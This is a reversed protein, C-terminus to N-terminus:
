RNRGDAAPRLLDALEARQADTHAPPEPLQREVFAVMTAFKLALRVRLYEPDDVDREGTQVARCLGAYKGRLSPLNLDTPSV